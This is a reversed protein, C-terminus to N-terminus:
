CKIYHHFCAINILAPILIIFPNYEPIRIDLLTIGPTTDIVIMLAAVMIIACRPRYIVAPTVNIAPKLAPNVIPETVIIVAM